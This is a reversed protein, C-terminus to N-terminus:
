GPHTSLRSTVTGIKWSEWHVCGMNGVCPRGQNPYTDQQQCHGALVGADRKEAWTAVVQCTADM